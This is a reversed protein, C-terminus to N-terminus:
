RNVNQSMETLSELSLQGDLDGPRVREINSLGVVGQHLGVVGPSNLPGVLTQLIKTDAGQRCFSANQSLRITPM